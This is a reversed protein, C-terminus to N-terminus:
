SIYFKLIRKLKCRLDYKIKASSFNETLLFFFKSYDNLRCKTRNQRFRHQMKRLFYFVLPSFLKLQNESFQKKPKNKTFYNM